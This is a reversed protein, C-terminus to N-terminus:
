KDDLEMMEIKTSVERDNQFFFPNLCINLDGESGENTMISTNSMFM